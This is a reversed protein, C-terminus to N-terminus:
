AVQTLYYDLAPFHTNPIAFPHAVLFDQLRSVRFDPRFARVGAAPIM